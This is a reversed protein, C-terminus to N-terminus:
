RLTASSLVLDSGACNTSTPLSTAIWRLILRLSSPCGYTVAYRASFFDTTSGRTDQIPPSVHVLDFDAEFRATASWGGLDVSLVHTAGDCPLSLSVTLGSTGYFRRHLNTPPSALEPTGDSWTAKVPWAPGSNDNCVSGTVAYTGIAGNGNMKRVPGGDAEDGWHAWDLAGEKTLDIDAPSPTVAWSISPALTADSADLPADAASAEASADPSADLAPDRDADTSPPAADADISLTGAVDVGCGILAAAALGLVTKAHV